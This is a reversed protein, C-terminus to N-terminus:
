QENTLRVQEGDQIPKSSDVIVYSGENLATDVAASIDNNALIDLLRVKKAIFREGFPVEVECFQYVYYGTSDERIADSPIVKEYSENKGLTTISISDGVRIGDGNISYEAIMNNPNEGDYYAKLFKVEVDNHRGVSNIIIDTSKSVTELYAPEFSGKIVYGKDETVISAVIDGELVSDGSAFPLSTIIGSVPMTVEDGFSKKNKIKEECEMLDIYMNYAEINNNAKSIYDDYNEVASDYEEQAVEFENEKMNYKYQISDESCELLKQQYEDNETIKSLEYRYDVLSDDLDKIIKKLDDCSTKTNDRTERLEPPIEEEKEYESCKECLEEYYDSADDLLSQKQDKLYETDTIKTNYDFVTKETESLIEKDMETKLADLEKKVIDVSEKKSNKTNRYGAANALITDFEPIDGKEIKEREYPSIENNLLFMQYNNEKEKLEKEDENETNEISALTYIVDGKEYYNNLVAEVSTITREETMKINYPDVAEITGSIRVSNSVNGEEVMAVKVEPLFINMVTKSFFTLLFMFILFIIITRRVKKQKSSEDNLFEIKLLIEM